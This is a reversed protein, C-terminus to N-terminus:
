KFMKRNRLLCLKLMVRNRGEPETYVCCCSMGLGPSGNKPVTDAAVGNESWFDVGIVVEGFRTECIIFNPKGPM